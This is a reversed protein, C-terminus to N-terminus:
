GRAATRSTGAQHYGSAKAASQCMYAGRKTHGFYKSGALHYVKTNSNAWVVNAAGCARNAAEQNDYGNAIGKGPSATTTAGSPMASHGRHGTISPQATTGPAPSTPSAAFGPGGCLMLGIVSLAALTSRM